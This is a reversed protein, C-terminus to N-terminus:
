RRLIRRRESGECEEAIEELLRKLKTYLPSSRLTSEYRTNELIGSRRGGDEVPRNRFDVSESGGEALDESLVGCGLIEPVNHLLYGHPGERCVHENPHPSNALFSSSYAFSFVSRFVEFIVFMIYRLLLCDNGSLM